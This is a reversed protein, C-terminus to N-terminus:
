QYFSDVNTIIKEWEKKKQQASELSMEPQYSTYPIFKKFDDWSWWGIALGCIFTAGLPSLDLKKTSFINLQIYDAITQVLISNSAAGGDCRLSHPTISSQESIVYMVDRIQHAISNICAKLIHGKTSSRSIGYIAAKAHSNWYPAGIGHFAPIIVVGESSPTDQLIKMLEEYSQFLGLSHKAWSLTDGSSYIIGELAYSMSKSLKWAITTVIGKSATIPKEGINMLVSTGTGLTAKAMGSEFCGQAFLAGQSDGIVGFIPLNQLPSAINPDSIHGFETDSPYVDPLKFGDLQFLDILEEDWELSHINFLLTRSANTYDTAHVTHNTLKYILWSDMTGAYASAVRYQQKLWQWKTASFYPSIILGTKDSIMQSYGNRILIGCQDATRNCQWVIANHLVHGADDWVLCTERQNTIAIAKVDGLILQFQEVAQNLLFIVNQYIENPNHELWGPYPYIQEHAMDLKHVIEAQQNVLLVKTGSTSQDITLIYPGM